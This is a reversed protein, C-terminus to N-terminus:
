PSAIALKRADDKRPRPMDAIRRPVEGIITITPVYLVFRPITTEEEVPLKNTHQLVKATRHIAVDPAPTNSAGADTLAAAMAIAALGVSGILLAAIDRRNM